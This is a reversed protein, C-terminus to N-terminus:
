GGRRSTEVDQGISDILKELEAMSRKDGLAVPRRALNIYESKADGVRDSQIYLHILNARFPVNAPDSAVAAQAYSLALPMSRMGAVAYDMAVSYILGRMSGSARPNSIGAELLAKVERDDLCLRKEVLLPSLSQVVAADGHTFPTSAFRERLQLQVAANKQMGAACDLYLLGILPAKGRTDLESAKKLHFQIFHYAMPSGGGAEYTRQMMATAAQYNARASEPHDAVEAQARQFDDAWQLSRLGTLLGCFLVFSAVLAARPVPWASDPRAPWALSCLWLIIGMSAVYNRHEYAMELPLLTSELSHSALFWFVAFTFLPRRARQRFAIVALAFWALIAPLTERPDLLGRSVPIDDHFLGFLHPAPLLLQRVYFWLVRAQTMLRELLDFDRVGYGRTIFEWNSWCLFSLLGAVFALSSWKVARSLKRLSGSLLWECLFIYAPLLLGTEKSLVAAPWCVLLSVGIAWLARRGKVRRGYLYLALAAFLFFASLSTMRQVVYLAPTANLPHLAWAAATAAAPAWARSPSPTAAAELCHLLQRVLVFVLLSNALHILLNTVKFSYASDGFFYLNFAFSAMSFPRGLPSSISSAAASMVSSWFDLGPKLAPNGVINVHDDFVFHGQLSAWFVATLAAWLAGM